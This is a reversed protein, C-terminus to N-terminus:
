KGYREESFPRLVKQVFLRDIAANRKIPPCAVNQALLWPRRGGSTSGFGPELVYGIREGLVEGTMLDTVALRGGAVWYSRDEKTSIDDRTVAYRSQRTEATETVIKDRSSGLRHVFFGSGRPNLAEVFGFGPRSTRKKTSIDNDDLDSLYRSIEAPPYLVLGYLDGMWYQDKLDWESPESRPKLLYIGKVDNATRYIKEGANEACRKRFHAWAAERFRQQETRRAAATREQAISQQMYIASPIGFMALVMTAAGVKRLRARPLRVAAWLVAAAAAVYSMMVIWFAHSM